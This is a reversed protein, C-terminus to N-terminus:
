KRKEKLKITPDFHNWKIHTCKNDNATAQLRPASLCLPVNARRSKKFDWNEAAFAAFHERNGTFLIYKTNCSADTAAYTRCSKTLCKWIIYAM